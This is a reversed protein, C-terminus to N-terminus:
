RIHISFFRLVHPRTLLVTILIAVGLKAYFSVSLGTVLLTLVVVGFIWALLVWLAWAWGKLMGACAVSIVPVGAFAHFIQFWVPVYMLGRSALAQNFEITQRYIGPDALVMIKPVVALLSWLIFFWCVLSVTRPRRIPTDM